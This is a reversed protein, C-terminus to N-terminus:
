FRYKSARGVIPVSQRLDYLLRQHARNGVGRLFLGIQTLVSTYLRNQEDASLVSKDREAILRDLGALLTAVHKEIAEKRDM